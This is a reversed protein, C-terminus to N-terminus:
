WETSLPSDQQGQVMKAEKKFVLHYIVDTGVACGAVMCLVCKDRASRTSLRGPGSWSVGKFESARQM